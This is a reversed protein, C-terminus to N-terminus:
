LTVRRQEAEARAKREDFWVLLPLTVVAAAILGLAAYLSDDSLTGTSLIPLSVSETYFVVVPTPSSPSLTVTSSQTVGFARVSLTYVGFSLQYPTGSGPLLPVAFGLTNALGSESWTANSLTYPFKAQLAGGSLDLIEAFILGRGSPLSPNTPGNETYSYNGSTIPDGFIDKATIGFTLSAGPPLGPLTATSTNQNLSNMPLTGSHSVGEDTYTFSIQASAISVNEIPEHLTINVPQATPLTTLSSGASGVTPTLAPTIALELNATIGGLPHWWGGNASWTFTYVPSTIKDVQGGEWPLWATVNFAVTAGPYPGIPNVLTMSTQNAPGFNVSFTTSAGEQTLTGELIAAPIPALTGGLDLAQLSVDFTQNENPSFSPTSLVNPTTSIAIDNTFNTSSWPGGVTYIWTAEDTYGGPYTLPVSENWASEVESPNTDQGVVTINFAVTSGPWFFRYDDFYFSAVSPDSVNVTMPRLTPAAPTFGSIPLANGDVPWQTGWITLNAFLIPAASSINLWFGLTSSPLANSYPVTLFPATLGTGSFSVQIDQFFNGSTWTSSSPSPRATPAAPSPARHTPAAPVPVISPSPAARPPTPAPSTSLESPRPVSPSALLSSSSASFVLVSVVLVALVAMALTRRSPGIV